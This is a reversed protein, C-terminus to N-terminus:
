IAASLAGLAAAAGHTFAALLPLALLTAGLLVVCGLVWRRGLWIGLATALAAASQAALGLALGLGGSHAMYAAAGRHLAFSALMVALVIQWLTRAPRDDGPRQTVDRDGSRVRHPEARRGPEHRRVLLRPRAGAGSRERLDRRERQRRRGRLDAAGDRGGARVRPGRARPRSRLCRRRDM